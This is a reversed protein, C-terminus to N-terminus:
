SNEVYFTSYLLIYTQEMLCSIVWTQESYSSSQICEVIAEGHSYLYM